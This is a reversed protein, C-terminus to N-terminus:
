SIEDENGIIAVEMVCTCNIHSLVKNTTFFIIFLLMQEFVTTSTGIAYILDGSFKLLHLVALVISNVGITCNLTISLKVDRSPITCCRRTTLYYLVMGAIMFSIKLFNLISLELILLTVSATGFNSSDSSRLCRGHTTMRYATRSILVDVLIGSVSCMVSLLFILISYKCLTSKKNQSVTSTKYSHYMLYTFQILLSLKTADYAFYFTVSAYFMMACIDGNRQNTLSIQVMSIFFRPITLVCLAVFLVGSLTQLEKVFLHLTIIAAAVLIGFSLIIIQIICITDSCHNDSTSRTCNTGNAPTIFLYIGNNVVIWDGTNNIINADSENIRITSENVFCYPSSSLQVGFSNNFMVDDNNAMCYIVEPLLILLIALTMEPSYLCLIRVISHHMVSFSVSLNQM